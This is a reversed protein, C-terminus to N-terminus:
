DQARTQNESMVHTSSHRSVNSSWPNWEQRYLASSSTAPNAFFNGQFGHTGFAQRGMKAARCEWLVASCEVLIQLHRPFFVPQSTVHSQGSRVSEADQFREFWEYLLNWETIGSDQKHTWPYHRSRRVIKDEFNYRNYYRSSAEIRGDWQFKEWSSWSFGSKTWTITWSSTTSRTSTTRRRSSCSLNRRKSVRNNWDIKSYKKKWLRSPVRTKSDRNSLLSFRSEKDNWFFRSKNM